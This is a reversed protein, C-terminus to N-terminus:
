YMGSHIFSRHAIDSSQLIQITAQLEDNNADYHVDDDRGGDDDDSSNSQSQNHMSLYRYYYAGCISVSIGVGSRMSIKDAYFLMGALIQLMEKLQGIVSMTLSSTTRLLVIEVIILCFSILGGFSLFGFAELLLYQSSSETSSTNVFDSHMLIPVEILLAFPLITLASYPSFRYLTVMSQSSQPDHLAILQM